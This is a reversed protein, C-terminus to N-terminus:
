VRWIKAYIKNDYTALNKDPESSDYGMDSYGIEFNTESVVQVYFYKKKKGPVVFEVTYEKERIYELFMLM